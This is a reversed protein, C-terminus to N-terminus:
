PYHLLVKSSLTNSEFKGSVSITKENGCVYKCLKLGTEDNTVCTYKNQYYPCFKQYSDFFRYNIKDIIFSIESNKLQPFSPLCLGNMSLNESNKLKLKNFYMPM